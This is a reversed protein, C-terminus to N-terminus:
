EIKIRICEKRKNTVVMNNDKDKCVMNSIIKNIVDEKNINGKNDMTEIGVEIKVM